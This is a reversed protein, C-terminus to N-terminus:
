AVQKHKNNRTLPKQKGLNKLVFHVLKEASDQINELASDITLDPNKPIDFNDNVGTLNYIKDPHGDPLLARKYLGKTDREILKDLSCHVYIIKVNNYKRKLEARTEEFPNIASIIALDVKNRLEDAVKGLRRINEMRDPKSFGLDRCLTQRYADGDIIETTISLSTLRQKLQTALTTKGAGSLGCLLLIM